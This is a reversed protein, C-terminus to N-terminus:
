RLGAEVNWSIAYLSVKLDRCESRKLGRVHLLRHEPQVNWALM